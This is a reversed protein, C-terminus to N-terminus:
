RQGAEAQQERLELGRRAAQEDEDFANSLVLSAATKAAALRGIKKLVKASTIERVNTGNVAATAPPSRGRRASFVIPITLV